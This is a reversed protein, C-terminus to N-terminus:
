SMQLENNIQVKFLREQKVPEIVPKVCPKDSGVYKYRIIPSNKVDPDKKIAEIDKARRLGRRWSSSRWNPNIERAKEKVSDYSLEGWERIFEKLKIIQDRM